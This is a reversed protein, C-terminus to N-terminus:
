VTRSQEMFDLFNYRCLQKKFHKEYENQAWKGWEATVQLNLQTFVYFILGPLSFPLLVLMELYSNWSMSM